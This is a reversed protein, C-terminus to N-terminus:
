KGGCVSLLGAIWGFGLKGFVYCVVCSVVIYKLAKRQLYFIITDPTAPKLPQRYKLNPSKWETPENKSDVEVNGKASMQAQAAASASTDLKQAPDKKKDAVGAASTVTSNDMKSSPAIARTSDQEAQEASLNMMEEENNVALNDKQFL